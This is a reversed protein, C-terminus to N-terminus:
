NKSFRVCHIKIRGVGVGEMEVGVEHGKKEELSMLDVRHQGCIRPHPVTVPANALRGPPMGM